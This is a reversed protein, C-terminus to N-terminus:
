IEEGKLVTDTLWALGHVGTGLILWQGLHQQLAHDGCVEAAFCAGRLIEHAMDDVRKGKKPLSANQQQYRIARVIQRAIEKAREVRQVRDRQAAIDVHPTFENAPLDM